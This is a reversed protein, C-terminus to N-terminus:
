ECFSLFLFLDHRSELQSSLSPSLSPPQSRPSFSVALSWGAAEVQPAPLLTRPTWGALRARAWRQPFLTWCSALALRRHVDVALPVPLWALGLCAAYCTASAATRKQAALADALGCYAVPVLAAATLAEVEASLEEASLAVQADQEKKKSSASDVENNNNEDRNFSENNSVEDEKEEEEESESDVHEPAALKPAGATNVTVTGTSAVVSSYAAGLAGMFDSSRLLLSSDSSSADLGALERSAEELTAARAQKAARRAQRKAIEVPPLAHAALFVAANGFAAEAETVFGLDTVL